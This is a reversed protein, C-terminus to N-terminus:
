LCSVIERLLTEIRVAAVMSTELVEESTIPQDFIGAAMNTILSLGLVDMGLSAAALVEFITSMGVADAGLTRFARVEAPTEFSPGRVGLYVGQELQLGCREAAQFALKQLSSSYVHSMDPFITLGNDEDLTLPTAGTLNIHDTILMIDGVAFSLNIGGAANTVILRKAGLAHLLQLPFAIEEPTNGEYAHLRGQMCALQQGGSEGFVFRGAHCPAGAAKVYPISEFDISFEENISEAIGGLGSGLILAITPKHTLHPQIAAAAESIRDKLSM